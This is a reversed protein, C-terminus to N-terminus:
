MKVEPAEPYLSDRIERLREKAEPSNDMIVEDIQTLVEQPIASYIPFSDKRSLKSQLLLNQMEENFVFDFNPIFFDYNSTYKLTAFSSDTLIYIGREYRDRTSELSLKQTMIENIRLNSHGISDGDIYFSFNLGAKLLEIDTGAQISAFDYDMTIMEASYELGHRIEHDLTVDLVKYNGDLPSILVTLDKVDGKDTICRCVYEPKNLFLLRIIAKNDLADEKFEYKNIVYLPALSKMCQMQYKERIDKLKELVIKKPLYEGIGYIEYWDENLLIDKSLSLEELNLGIRRLYELRKFLINEKEEDNDSNKLRESYEPLFYELLGPEFPLETNFAKEGFLTDRDCIFDISKLDRLQIGKKERILEKDEESLFVKCEDALLELYKYVVEREKEELEIAYDRIESLESDIMLRYKKALPLILKIIEMLTRYKNTKIFDKIDSVNDIHGLQQFVIGRKYLNFQTEEDYKPLFSFIGNDDETFGIIGKNPFFAKIFSSVYEDESTLNGDKDIYVKSVDLGIQKIIDITFRRGLDVSRVEIYEKLKRPNEYFCYKIQNFKEKIFDRSQEGYQKVYSEILHHRNAKVLAEYNRFKM